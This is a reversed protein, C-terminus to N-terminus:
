NRLDGIILNKTEEIQININDSFKMLAEKEKDSMEMRINIMDLNSKSIIKIDETENPDSLIEMNKDLLMELEKEERSYEDLILSVRKNFLTKIEDFRMKVCNSAEEISTSTVLLMIGELKALRLQDHLESELVHLQSLIKEKSM